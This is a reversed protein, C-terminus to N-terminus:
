YFFENTNLKWEGDERIVDVTREYSYSSGSGFPGSDHYTDMVFTVSARDPDSEDTHIDTIRLRRAQETNYSEFPGYVEPRGEGPANKVEDLIGAAYYSRAKSLDGKQLALFANYVPAAPTDEDLYATQDGERGGSLNVGVVAAILLLGIIAIVTWTFKDMKLNM